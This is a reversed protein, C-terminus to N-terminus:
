SAAMQEYAALTQRATTEWSFAKARALGKTRLEERTQPETTLKHIAAAIEERSHPDVLLAAGGAVEPMSSVNSTIVPTGCAMAEVIPFGFGEWFSAFVLARAGCYLVPLEHLPSKGLDIVDSQIGLKAILKDADRSSWTKKGTLVLKLDSPHERKVHAFAEITGLINKRPEWRGSFLIYPDRIGYKNLLVDQVQEKPWPRFIDNPALYTVVFKERPLQFREATMDKINQSICLTLASKQIGRRYLARVRMRVAPPYYEPHQFPSFCLLSYIYDQPCFPPPVFTSHVSDLAANKLAWPLSTMMSVTRIDGLWLQQYSFNDQTVGLAREAAADFCFIRYENKRDIKALARLLSVEYTEPGGANRGATSVFIGFRM